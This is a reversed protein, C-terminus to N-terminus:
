PAEYLESGQEQLQKLEKRIYNMISARVFFDDIDWREINEVVISKMECEDNLIALIM